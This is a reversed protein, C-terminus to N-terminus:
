RLEVAPLDAICERVSRETGVEEGIRKIAAIIDAGAELLEGAHRDHEGQWRTAYVGYVIARGDAHQRVTLRWHRDAQCEHQGEYDTASAITPWEAEIIRVPPRDTLTITRTKTETTITSDSM